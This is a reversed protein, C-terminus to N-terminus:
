GLEDLLYVAVASVDPGTHAGLVASVRNDTVKEANHIFDVCAEKLLDNSAPDDGYVFGLWYRKHDGIFNELHSRIKQTVKKEGRVKELTLLKGTEDLTLLPKINLASGFAGSVKSLRGGRVLYDLSHVTLFFKADVTKEKLIDYIESISNGARIMELAYLIHYGQLIAVTKTDLILSPIEKRRKAVTCAVNYTGSLESSMMLGIVGEYGQAIIADFVREFDGESPTSTTAVITEMEKFLDQTDIEYKDKLVRDELIISLPAVFIGNEKCFDLTLDCSSDTLIAIKSM